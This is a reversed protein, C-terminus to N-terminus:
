QEEDTWRLRTGETIGYSDAFGAVVELVYQAPQKSSTNEPTMPRVYKAIDVVTSDDDIFFMDLALPTNAMWFTQPQMQEFIFLMGSRDPLSTRQMLGLTRSSDDAAIEIDIKVLETGDDLLFTLDGEDTFPIDVAPPEDTPPAD